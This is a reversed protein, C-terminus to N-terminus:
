PLAPAPPLLLEGCEKCLKPAKTFFKAALYGVGIGVGLSLALMTLYESEDVVASRAQRQSRLNEEECTKEEKVASRQKLIRDFAGPDVEQPERAVPITTQQRQIEEDTEFEMKQEAKPLEEEEQNVRTDTPMRRTRVRPM